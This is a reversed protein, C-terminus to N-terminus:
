KLRNLIPQLDAPLSLKQFIKKRREGAEMQGLLRNMASNVVAKWFLMGHVWQAYQDSISATTASQVQTQFESFIRASDLFVDWDGLIRQVEVDNQATALSDESALAEKFGLARLGSWLPTVVKWLAGHRLFQPLNPQIAADLSAQGGQLGAQRDPPIAQWLEAPNILYNEMTFRPLVLLNPQQQTNANIVAQDWEDRDVLGLWDPELELIEVVHRKGGAHDIGWKQEWGPLFRQLLIRFAEVDDPGELLFVGKNQSGVVRERIKDRLTKASM